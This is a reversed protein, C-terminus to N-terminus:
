RKIGESTMGGVVREKSAAWEVHTAVIASATYMSERSEQLPLPQSRMRLPYMRKQRRQEAFVCPIAAGSSKEGERSTM